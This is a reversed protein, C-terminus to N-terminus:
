EKKLINNSDWDRANSDIDLKSGNIVTDAAKTPGIADVIDVGKSTFLILVFCINKANLNGCLQKFIDRKRQNHIYNTFVWICNFLRAAAAGEEEEEVVAATLSAATTVGVLCYVPDMWAERDIIFFKPICAKYM